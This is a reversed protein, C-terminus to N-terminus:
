LLVLAALFALISFVLHLYVILNLPGELIGYLTRMMLHVQRVVVAAFILYLLLTLLFFVKVLVFLNAQTFLVTLLDATPM